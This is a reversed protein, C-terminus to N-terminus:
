FVVVLPRTKEKREKKRKKRRERRREEGVEVLEEQRESEEEAVIGEEEYCGGCLHDVREFEEEEISSAHLFGMARGEVESAEHTEVM